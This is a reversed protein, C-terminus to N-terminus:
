QGGNTPSTPILTQDLGEDLIPKNIKLGKSFESTKGDVTATATLYNANGSFPIEIKSSSPYMEKEYIFSEGEGYTTTDLEKNGFFQVLVKKGVPTDVTLLIKLKGTASDFDAKHLVPFNMLDNTGNDTDGTDNQTVGGNPILDIGLSKNKFISNNLISIIDSRTSVGVGSSENFAIINDKILSSYTEAMHIGYGKNPYPTKKDLGLGITNGNIKVGYSSQVAIGDINNSITNSPGIVVGGDSNEIRIGTAQVVSGNVSDGTSSLGIINNQIQINSPKGTNSNEGSVLIGNEKNASIVNNKIVVKGAQSEVIIGNVNSQPTKGDIGVGIYNNKITISDSRKGVCIASFKGCLGGLVQISNPSISSSNAIFNNEISIVGVDYYMTIGHAVNVGTDQGSASLGMINNKITTYASNEWISRYALIVNRKNGDGGIISGYGYNEIGNGCPAPTEGDLGLGIYNGYIQAESQLLLCTSMDTIALGRVISSPPNPYKFSPDRIILGNMSEDGHLEVGVVGEGVQSWGDILVSYITRPLQSTLQITVPGGPSIDFEITSFDPDANAQYIAWRLSGVSGDDLTNTVVFTSSGFLSATLGSNNFTQFAIVLSVVVVFSAGLGKLVNITNVKM